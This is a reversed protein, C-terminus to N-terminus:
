CPSTKFYKRLITYPLKVRYNRQVIIKIQLGPTSIKDHLWKTDICRTHKWKDTAEAVIKKKQSSLINLYM